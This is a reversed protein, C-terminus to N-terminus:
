RSSDMRGYDRNEIGAKYMIIVLLLETVLIWSRVIGVSLGFRTTSPTAHDTLRIGVATNETKYVPFAITEKL